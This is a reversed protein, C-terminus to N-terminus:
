YYVSKNSISNVYREYFLAHKCYSKDSKICTFLRSWVGACAIDSSAVVCKVDKGLVACLAARHKGDYVYYSDGIQYIKVPEYNDSLVSDVITNYKNNFRSPNITKIGRRWDLYGHYYRNIYESDAVEKDNYLLSMLEAHPSNVVPTDLLTYKDKLFDPGLRLLSPSININKLVFQGPFVLQNLNINKIGYKGKYFCFVHCDSWFRSIAKWWITYLKSYLSM